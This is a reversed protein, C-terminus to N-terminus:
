PPPPPSAFTGLLRSRAEALGPGNRLDVLAEMVGDGGIDGGLGLFSRVAHAFPDSAARNALSNIEGAAVANGNAWAMVIWGAGTQLDAADEATEISLRGLSYMADADGDAAALRYWHLADTVSRETGLGLEFFYGVKNQSYTEGWEANALYLDFARRYDQEGARGTELYWAVHTRALIGGSDAARTFWYLAREPQFPLERDGDYLLALNHMAGTVGSQAAVLYHDRAKEDERAATYARGIWFHLNPDDPALELAAQCIPIANRHDISPVTRGGPFDSTAPAAAAMCQQIAAAAISDEQECPCSIPNLLIDRSGLSGYLFPEQRGSTAAVVEDRVTRFVSTFDVDPAGIHRALSAAFTGNAGPPGDYSVAGARTAYALIVNAPQYDVRSMGESINIGRSLLPTSQPADGYFQYADPFSTVFKSATETSTGFPNNRCSDLIVLVTAGPVDYATLIRALPIVGSISAGSIGADRMLLFNEGLVQVGHGSFYIVLTTSSAGDSRPLEPLRFEDFTPDLLATVAFGASELSTAVIAADRRANPLLPLEAYNSVGVVLAIKHDEQAAVPELFLALLGLLIAM